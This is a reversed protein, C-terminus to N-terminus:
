HRHKLSTVDSFKQNFNEIEFPSIMDINFLFVCLIITLIYM